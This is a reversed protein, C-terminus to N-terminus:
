ILNKMMKISLCKAGGPQYRSTSFSTPVAALPEAAAGTDAAGAGTAAGAGIASGTDGDPDAASSVITGIRPKRLRM